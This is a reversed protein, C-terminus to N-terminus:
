IEVLTQNSFQREDQYGYDPLRFCHYGDRIGAAIINPSSQTTLFKRANKILGPLHSICRAKIHKNYGHAGTTLWYVRDFEFGLSAAVEVAQSMTPRWQQSHGEISILDYEGAKLGYSAQDVSTNTFRPPQHREDSMGALGFVYAQWTKGSARYDGYRAPWVQLDLTLVPENFERNFCPTVYDVCEFIPHYEPLCDFWVELGRRHLEQCIPFCNVIDGLRLRYKVLAKM